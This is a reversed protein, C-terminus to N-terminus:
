QLYCLLTINIKQSDLVAFIWRSAVKLFRKRLGRRWLSSTLYFLFFYPFRGCQVTREKREWGLGAKTRLKSLSMELCNFIKLREQYVKQAILSRSFFINFFNLFSIFYVSHANLSCDTKSRECCYPEQGFGNIYFLLVEANNGEAVQFSSNCRCLASFM